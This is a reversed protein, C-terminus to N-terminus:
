ARIWDETLSITYIRLVTETQPYDGVDLEFADWYFNWELAQLRRVYELVALYDGELVLEMGHKYANATEKDADAGANNGTDSDTTKDDLLPTAGLGKLQTLSIGRTRNIVNRLVEPMRAPAIMSTATDQINDEMTSLQDRLAALRERNDADPDEGQRAIAQRVQINLASLRARETELQSQARSQRADLPAMFFTDWVFVLVAIVALLVMARERISLSDVKDQYTKLKQKALNDAM